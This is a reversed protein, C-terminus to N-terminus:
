YAFSVGFTPAFPLNPFSARDPRGSFSYLYAAPNHANFVNVISLYPNMELGFLHGRRNVSVDVRTYWPLRASNLRGPILEEDTATSWRHLVPDYQMSRFGGLVPTYPIGSALNARAGLTVSGLRWSGVLNLNHRRDQTPFYRVGDAGVRTNLAYSYALWGSFPGGDLQRLLLDVGYSYGSTQSLEDGRIRSDNDGNPVLLREYKKYFAEVHFLRHPTVWRELGITADRATSVPTLSDSAIWFQLPQVPEEERGLSHM